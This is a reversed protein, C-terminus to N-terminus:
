ASPEAGKPPWKGQITLGHKVLASGIKVAEQPLFVMRVNGGDPMPFSALVGIIGGEKHIGVKIRSLFNKATGPLVIKGDKDPLVLESKHPTGDTPTRPPLPRPGKRRKGM